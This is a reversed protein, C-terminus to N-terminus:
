VSISPAIRPAIPKSASILAHRAYIQEALVNLAGMPVNKAFKNNIMLHRSIIPLVTWWVNM